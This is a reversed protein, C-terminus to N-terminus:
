FFTNEHSENFISSKAAFFVKKKWKSRWKPFNRWIQNRLFFFKQDEFNKKTLKVGFQMFFHFYQGIPPMGTSKQTFFPSEVGDQISAAM